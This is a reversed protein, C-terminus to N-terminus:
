AHSNLQEEAEKLKRIITAWFLRKTAVPHDHNQKPTYNLLVTKKLYNEFYKALQLNNCSAPIRDAAAEHARRHEQFAETKLLHQLQKGTGRWLQKDAVIAAALEAIKFHTKQRLHELEHEIVVNQAIKGMNLFLDDLVLTYCDIENSSSLQIRVGTAKGRIIKLPQYLQNNEFKKQILSITDQPIDSDATVSTYNTINRNAQEKRPEIYGKIRAFATNPINHEKIIKQKAKAEKEQMFYQICECTSLNAALLRTATQRFKVDDDSLRLKKIPQCIDHMIEKDMAFIATLNLLCIMFLTINIIIKM